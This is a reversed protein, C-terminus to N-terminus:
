EPTPAGRTQWDIEVRRNSRRGALTENSAIPNAPGMGRATIREPAIGRGVLYTKVINARFESVKLNYNINGLADTYGRVTVTIEDRGQLAAAIRDLDQMDERTLENSDIKFNVMRANPDERLDDLSVRPSALSPPEAFPDSTSLPAVGSPASSRQTPAQDSQSDVESRVALKNEASSEAVAVSSATGQPVGSPKPTDISVDPADAKRAPASTTEPAAGPGSAELSQTNTAITENGPGRLSFVLLGAVFCLLGIIVV